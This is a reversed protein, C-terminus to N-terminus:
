NKTLQAIEAIVKTRAEQLGLRKGELLTIEVEVNTLQSEIYSLINELHKM